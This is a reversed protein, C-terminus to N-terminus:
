IAFPKPKAHSELLLTLLRYLKLDDQMAPTGHQEMFVLASALLQQRLKTHATQLACVRVPDEM